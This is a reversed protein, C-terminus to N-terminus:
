LGKGDSVDWHHTQLEMAPEKVIIAYEVNVALNITGLSDREHDYLADVAGAHSYLDRFPADTLLWWRFSTSRIRM